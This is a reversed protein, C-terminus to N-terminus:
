NGIILNLGDFRIDKPCEINVGDCIIFFGRKEITTYLRIDALKDMKFEFGFRNSLSQNISERNSEAREVFKGRYLESSFVYTIYSGGYQFTFSHPSQRLDYAIKSRTLKVM